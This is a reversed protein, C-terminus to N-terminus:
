CKSVHSHAADLHFAFPIHMYQKTLTAAIHRIAQKLLPSGMERNFIM